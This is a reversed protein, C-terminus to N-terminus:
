FKSNIKEMRSKIQGAIELLSDVGSTKNINRRQDAEYEFQKRTHVVVKKPIKIISGGSSMVRM